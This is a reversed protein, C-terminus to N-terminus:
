KPTTESPPAPAQATEGEAPSTDPLHETEVVVGGESVVAEVPPSPASMSGRDAPADVVVSKSQTEHNSAEVVPTTTPAEVVASVTPKPKFLQSLMDKPSTARQQTPMPQEARRQAAQVQQEPTEELIPMPGIGMERSAREAAIYREKLNVLKEAADLQDKKSQLAKDIVEEVKKGGAKLIREINDVNFSAATMFDVPTGNQTVTRWGTPLQMSKLGDGLDIVNPNNEAAPAPPEKEPREFAQAVEKQVTAVERFVGTLERMQALPSPPPAAVPPERVPQRQQQVDYPPGHQQMPQLLPQQQIPVLAYGPPPAYQQQQPPPYYPQQQQPQYPATPQLQQHYQQAQLQSKLEAVQGLLYRTFEEGGPLGSPQYGQQQPQQPPPPQQYGQQQAQQQAPPAYPPQGQGNAPNPQYTMPPEEAKFTFTGQMRSPHGQTWLRWTYDHDLNRRKWLDNCVWDRVDDLSPFLSAMRSPFKHDEGPSTQIITLKADPHDALCDAYRIAPETSSPRRKGQAKLESRRQRKQVLHVSKDDYAGGHKEEIEDAPPLEEDEPLPEVEEERKKRMQRIDRSSLNM